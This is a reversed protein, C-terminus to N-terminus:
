CLVEFALRYGDMRIASPRTASSRACGISQSHQGLEADKRIQHKVFGCLVVPEEHGRWVSDESASINEPVHKRSTSEPRRERRRQAAGRGSSTASLPAPM